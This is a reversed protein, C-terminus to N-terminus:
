YMHRAMWCSTTGKGQISGGVCVFSSRIYDCALNRGEQCFNGLTFTSTVDYKLRHVAFSQYATYIVIAISQCILMNQVKYCPACPMGEGELGPHWRASEAQPHRELGIGVAFRPMNPITLNSQTPDRDPVANAVGTM